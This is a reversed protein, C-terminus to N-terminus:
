GINQNSLKIHPPLRVLGEMGPRILRPDSYIKPYDGAFHAQASSLCSYNSM